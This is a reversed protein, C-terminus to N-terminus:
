QKLNLKLNIGENLIFDLMIKNKPLEKYYKLFYKICMKIIYIKEYFINFCQNERDKNNLHSIINLNVNLNENNEYYISKFLKLFEIEKELNLNIESLVKLYDNIIILNKDLYKKNNTLLAIKLNEGIINMDFIFKLKFHEYLFKDKKLPIYDILFKDFINNDFQKYLFNILKFQCKKNIENFNNDFLIKEQNLIQDILEIEEKFMQLIFATIQNNKAYKMCDFQEKFIIM